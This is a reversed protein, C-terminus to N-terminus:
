KEEKALELSREIIARLRANIDKDKGFRARDRSNYERAREIDIRKRAIEEREQELERRDNDLIQKERLVRERSQEIVLELNRIIAKSRKLEKNTRTAYWFCVASTIIAVVFIIIKAYKGVKNLM